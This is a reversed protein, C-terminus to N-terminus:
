TRRRAAEEACVREFDAPDSWNWLPPGLRHRGAAIMSEFAAFAEKVSWCGDAAGAILVNATRMVPLGRLCAVEVGVGDDMLISWGRRTAMAICAAEGRNRRLDRDWHDSLLRHWDVTEELTMTERQGATVPSIVARASDGLEQVVEDVVHVRGKMVRLLAVALEPAAQFNRWVSTDFLWEGVALTLCPLVTM